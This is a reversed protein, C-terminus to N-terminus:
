ARRLGAPYPCQQHVAELARPAPHPERPETQGESGSRSRARHGRSSVCPPCPQQVPRMAPGSRLSTPLVGQEGSSCLSWSPRASAPGAPLLPLVTLLPVGQLSPVGGQLSLVGPPHGCAKGTHALPTELARIPQPETREHREADDM